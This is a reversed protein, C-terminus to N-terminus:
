RGGGGDKTFLPFKKEEGETFSNIGPPHPQSPNNLVPQITVNIKKDEACRFTCINLIVCYVM